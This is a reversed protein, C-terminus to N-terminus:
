MEKRKRERTKVLAAATRSIIAACHMHTKLPIFSNRGLKRSAEIKNEGWGDMGGDM